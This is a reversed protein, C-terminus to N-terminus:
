VRGGACQGEARGGGSAKTTSLVTYWQELVPWRQYHAPPLGYM